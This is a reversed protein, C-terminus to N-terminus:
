KTDKESVYINTYILARDKKSHSLVLNSSYVAEWLIKYVQCTIPAKCMKNELMLMGHGNGYIDELIIIKLLKQEGILHFHILIDTTLIM